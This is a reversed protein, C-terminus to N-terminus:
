NNRLLHQRIFKEAGEKGKFWYMERGNELGTVKYPRSDSNVMELLDRKYAVCKGSGECLERSWAAYVEMHIFCKIVYRVTHPKNEFSVVTKIADEPYEQATGKTGYKYLILSDVDEECGCNRLCESLFNKGEQTTM